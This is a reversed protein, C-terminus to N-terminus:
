SWVAGAAVSTTALPLERTVIRVDYGALQLCRASSLGIVGSGIVIVKSM